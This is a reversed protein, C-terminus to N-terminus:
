NKLSQTGETAMKAAGAGLDPLQFRQAFIGFGSGDQGQSRWAVVFHGKNNMAITPYTQERAAFRNVQFEDGLPSGAADFRQAFIGMGDGDQGHSGWAIIVQGLRGTTIAPFQQSGKTYTNVRLESGLPTGRADFRQAYVGWDSGDQDRSSWSVVFQGSSDMSVASGLQSGARSTNVQFEPGVRKGQANFRQAFIGMGDRDQGRSSWTIVFNGAEDMAMAPDLQSGKTFRNVQFEPGIREGHANFRQAFVGMADGDQRRSSWTIVFHGAADMAVAPGLQDGATFSNVQFEPGIRGGQADFRQAFIGFKSGDQNLSRWVIVFHGAGNMAIAPYQQSSSSYDNVRFESGMPTGQADFRQAFISGTSGDQGVSYWTIVFNGADDLAAAPDLQNDATFMNVQFEPGIRMTQPTPESRIGIAFLLTLLFAISRSGHPFPRQQMMM